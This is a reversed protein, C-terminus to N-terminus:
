IDDKYILGKALFFSAIERRVEESRTEELRIDEESAPSGASERDTIKADVSHILGAFEDEFDIMAALEADLWIVSKDRRFWTLQRKAYRRSERKISSVTEPFDM